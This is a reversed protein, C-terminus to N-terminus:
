FDSLLRVEVNDRNLLVRLVLVGVKARFKRFFERQNPSLAPSSTKKKGSKVEVFYFPKKFPSRSKPVCFFDEKMSSFLCRRLLGLDNASAHPFRKLVVRRYAEYVERIMTKEVSPMRRHVLEYLRIKAWPTVIGYQKGFDWDRSIWFENASFHAVCEINTKLKRKITQNSLSNPSFYKDAEKDTFLESPLCTGRLLHRDVKFTRKYRRQYLELMESCLRDWAEQILMAPAYVGFATALIPEAFRRECAEGLSQRPLRFLERKDAKTLSFFSYPYKVGGSLVRSEDPLNQALYKAVSRQLLPSAKGM